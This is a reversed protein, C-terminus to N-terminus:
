RTTLQGALQRSEELGSPTLLLRMEGRDGLKRVFDGLDNVSNMFNNPDFFRSGYHECYQRVLTLPTGSTDIGGHQRGVCALLILQRMAARRSTALRGPPVIIQLDDDVMAYLSAVADGSLGLRAELTALVDGQAVVHQVSDERKSTTVALLGAASILAPGQLHEPLGLQNVIGLARTLVDRVDRDDV